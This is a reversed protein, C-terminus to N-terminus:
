LGLSLSSTTLDKTTEAEVAEEAFVIVAATAAAMAVGTEAATITRIEAVVLRRHPVM